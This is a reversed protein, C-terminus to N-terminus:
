PKEDIFPKYSYIRVAPYIKRGWPAAGWRVARQPPVIIMGGQPLWLRASPALVTPNFGFQAFGQAAVAAPTVLFALTLAVPKLNTM